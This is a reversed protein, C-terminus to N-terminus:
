HRRLWGKYVYLVFGDHDSSRLLTTEDNILDVAADANGRAFQLGLVRRDLPASTLAHDLTQANGRFIFSYREDEPLSFVQNMLDPNVLDTGSILADAPEFDGRIHGLADVYGDSFEFANFDGIVVLNRSRRQSQLDQVKQAISQAQEFRKARVREGDSGDIGGLSRNHVVMVSIPMFGVWGHLVLPPRDHLLDLEQTIPQLYTEDAGLQEVRPFFVRWKRVLFGVDITGIDNGEILFARYRARPNRSNIEAALDELVKLSEVEQVGLVDPTQMNDIVYSALKTLRRQYEETSISADDDTPEGFANAGPADDIDDFLRFMNLSGVTTEYWRARRVPHPLPAPTVTLSSPWLEYGGFEYGIVGTASFSSGAPIEQNPLGLKDPDLEFVEPNGDWVPLGVIGPVEIGPERFTRTSDATIHVEALPDPGFRQNSGTVTGNDITVLMGEYCEFEVACSPSTPDSSPTMADFVVPAPLELGSGIVEVTPGSTFETFDFFEDVTGTVNVLDGVAVAPADGTFVYIGDSTNIDGDSRSSPTQMAFGDLGVATVINGETIVTDGEFPTASGSGQIEFIEAFVLEPPNPDSCGSANAANTTGPTTCVLAFDVNNQDTDNGDPSRSISVFPTSGSDALGAGSGEVAGAIDGEYSVGDVLDSGNLLIVGDPAGNQIMNTNPSVDLDCNPTNAADGCLVFYDGDALVGAPLNYTQYASGGNGNILQVVYGDLDIDAGSVNKLEVFEAADSSLQDYDVENIVIEGSGTGGGGTGTDGCDFPTGGNFTQGANVAAFNSAQPGTWLFEAATSGNGTLQLSDGVATDSPETVGIDMSTLGSAPGNTATLAGEYSIFDIVNDTADVLAIGDPSGNQIGAISFSAAGFGGQEDVIVGSLNVTNYTSGNSGNYLVLRCGALDTGAAAAVEVAEGTDGGTNDYHLENIFIQASATHAFSLTLLTVVIASRNLM